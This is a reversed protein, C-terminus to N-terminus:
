NGLPKILQKATQVDVDLIEKVLYGNFVFKFMKRIYCATLNYNQVHKFDGQTSVNNKPRNLPM